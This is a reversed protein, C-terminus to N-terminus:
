VVEYFNIAWDKLSEFLSVNESKIYIGDFSENHSYYYKSLAEVLAMEDANEFDDLIDNVAQSISCCM